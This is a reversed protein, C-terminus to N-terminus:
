GEEHWPMRGGYYTGAIYEQEEFPKAAILELAHKRDAEARAKSKFFGCGRCCAKEPILAACEGGHNAFCFRNM